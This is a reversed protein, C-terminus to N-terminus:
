RVAVAMGTVNFANEFTGANIWRAGFVPDVVHYAGDKFGDVNVVHGNWVARGWSMQKFEPAEYDYTIWAVVSNGNTIQRKIGATGQGSINVAKSGYKAAWQVVPTAMMGQYTGDVNHRWEGSYGDYPNNDASLPMSQVFQSLNQTTYGKYLLGELLSSGECLMTNGQNVFPVGLVKQTVVPESPTSPTSPKSSSSSSEQSSSSSSPTVASSSTSSSSNANTSGSEKSSSSTSSTGSNTAQSSSSAVSSAPESPTTTSSQENTASSATQGAAQTVKSGSFTTGVSKAPDVKDQQQITSQGTVTGDPAMMTATATGAQSWDLTLTAGTMIFSPNAVGNLQALKAVTINTRQSIAWLTDGWQITYVKQGKSIQIEAPKRATWTAAQVPSAALVLGSLVTAAVTSMSVLKTMKM